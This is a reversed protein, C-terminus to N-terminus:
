GAAVFSVLGLQLAAAAVLVVRPIAMIELCPLTPRAYSPEPPAAPRTRCFGQARGLRCVIWKVQFLVCGAPHKLV